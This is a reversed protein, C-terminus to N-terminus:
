LHGLAWYVALLIGYPYTVTPRLSNKIYEMILGLVGARGAQWDTHLQFPIARTVGANKIASEVILLREGIRNQYTKWIGEQVWLVLVMLSLPIFGMHVSLGVFCLVTSVLKLILANKEYQEYASQLTIWEQEFLTNKIESM